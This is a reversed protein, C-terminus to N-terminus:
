PALYSIVTEERQQDAFEMTSKVADRVQQQALGHPIDPHGPDAITPIRETALCM